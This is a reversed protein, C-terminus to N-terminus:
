GGNLLLLIAKFVDIGCPGQGGFSSLLPCCCRVFCFVLLLEKTHHPPPVAEGWGVWKNRRQRRM